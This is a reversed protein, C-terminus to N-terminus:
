EASEAIPEDILRHSEDSLSAISSSKHMNGTSRSKNLTKGASEATTDSSSRLKQKSLRRLAAARNEVVHVAGPKNRAKSTSVPPLPAISPPARSAKIQEELSWSTIFPPPSTPTKPRAAKAKARARASSTKTERPHPSHNDSSVSRTISMSRSHRVSPTRSPAPTTAPTSALSSALSSAPSSRPLEIAELAQKVSAEVAASIEAMHEVSLSRPQTALREQIAALLKLSRGVTLGLARFGEMNALRLVDWDLMEERAFQKTQQASLGHLQLWDAIDQEEKTLTREVDDGSVITEQSDTRDALTLSQPQDAPLSPLAVDDSKCLLRPSEKREAAISPFANAEAPTCMDNPVPTAAAAAAESAPQVTTSAAAVTSPAVASGTSPALSRRQLEPSAPTSTSAQSAHESDADADSGPDRLTFYLKPLPAAETVCAPVIEGGVVSSSERRATDPAHSPSPSSGREAAVDSKDMSSRSSQSGGDTNGSSSSSSSGAIDDHDPENEPIAPPSPLAKLELFKMADEDISIMSLSRARRPKATVGSEAAATLISKDEVDAIDHDKCLQLLESHTMFDLEDVPIQSMSEIINQALRSMLM